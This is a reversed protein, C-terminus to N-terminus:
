NMLTFGRTRSGRSSSSPRRGRSIGPLRMTSTPGGGLPESSLSGLISLSGNVRRLVVGDLRSGDLALGLLTTLRKRKRFKFKFDPKM